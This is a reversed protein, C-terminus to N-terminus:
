CFLSLTALNVNARLPVLKVCSGANKPGDEIGDTRGTGDGGCCNEKKKEMKEKEKKEEKQGTEWKVRTVGWM